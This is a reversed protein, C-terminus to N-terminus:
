LDDRNKQDKGARDKGLPLRARDFGTKLDREAENGARVIRRLLTVKWGSQRRDCLLKTRRKTKRIKAKGVRIHAPDAVVATNGIFADGVDVATSLGACRRKEVPLYRSESISCVTGVAHKDICEPKTGAHGDQDSLRRVASRDLVFVDAQCDVTHGRHYIRGNQDARDGQWLGIAAPNKENQVNIRYGILATL